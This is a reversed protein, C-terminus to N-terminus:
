FGKLIEIDEETLGSKRAKQVVKEQIQNQIDQIKDEHTPLHIHFCDKKPGYWDAVNNETIEILEVPKVIADSGQVNKGKGLRIATTKLRCVAFPINYGKGETLDTNVYAVYVTSKKM